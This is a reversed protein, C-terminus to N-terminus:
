KTKGKPLADTPVQADESAKAQKVAEELENIRNLMVDMAYGARVEVGTVGAKLAVAMDKFRIMDKEPIQM